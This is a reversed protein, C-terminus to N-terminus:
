EPKPVWQFLDVDVQGTVTMGQVAELVDEGHAYFNLVTLRQWWGVADGADLTDLREGANTAVEDTMTVFDKITQGEALTVTVTVTMPATITYSTTM